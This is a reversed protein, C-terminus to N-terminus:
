TPLATMASPQTMSCVYTSLGVSQNVVGTGSASVKNVNGVGNAARMGVLNIASEIMTRLSTKMPSLVSIAYADSGRHAARATVCLSSIKIFSSSTNYGICGCNHPEFDSDFGDMPGAPGLSTDGVSSGFRRNETSTRAAELLRSKSIMTSPVACRM